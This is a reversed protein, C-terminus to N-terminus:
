NEILRERIMYKDEHNHFEHKAAPPTILIPSNPSSQELDMEIKIMMTIMLMVMLMMMMMMAIMM